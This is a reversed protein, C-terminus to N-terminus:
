HLCTPPSEQQVSFNPSNPPGTYTFSPSPAKLNTWGGLAWDAQLLVEVCSQVVKLKNGECCPLPHCLLGMGFAINLIRRLLASFICLSRSSDRLSLQMAYYPRQFIGRYSFYIYIKRLPQILKM